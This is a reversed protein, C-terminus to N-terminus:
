HHIPVLIVWGAKLHSSASMTALISPNHLKIAKLTSEVSTKNSPNGAFKAAFQYFTLRADDATVKHGQWTTSTSAGSGGSTTGGTSGSTAGTTVSTNAVIPLAGAPPYGLLGIAARILLSETTSLPQGALYKGITNAALNRDYGVGELMDVVRQAWEPNTLPAGQPQVSGIVTSGGPTTAGAFADPSTLDQGTVDGETPQTQSKGRRIWAWIVIGAAVSGAVLVYTSKTKGVVPVNVTEPM